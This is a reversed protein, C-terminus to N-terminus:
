PARLGAPRDFFDGGTELWRWAPGDLETLRTSAPLMKWPRLQYDVVQKNVLRGRRELPDPKPEQLLPKGDRLVSNFTDIEIATIRGRRWTARIECAEGLAVAQSAASEASQRGRPWPAQRQPKLEDKVLNLFRNFSEEDHTRLKTDIPARLHRKYLYSLCRKAPFGQGTAGQCRSRAVNVCGVQLMRQSLVRPPAYGHIDIGWALAQGVTEIPYLKDPPTSLIAGLLGLPLIGQIEETRERAATFQDSGWLPSDQDFRDLHTEIAFHDYFGLLAITSLARAYAQQYSAANGDQLRTDLAPAHFALKGRHHLYRGGWSTDVGFATDRPYGSMFLVACASICAEGDAVVMMWDKFLTGIRIAERPDGGRSSLCLAKYGEFAESFGAAGLTTAIRAHDGPLIAGMLVANCRPKFLLEAPDNGSTRDVVHLRAAGAPAASLIALMVAVALPVLGRYARPLTIRSM